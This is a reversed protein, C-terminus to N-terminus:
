FSPVAAREAPVVRGIQSVAARAAWGLPCCRYRKALDGLLELRFAEARRAPTFPEYAGDPLQQLLASGHSDVAVASFVAGM